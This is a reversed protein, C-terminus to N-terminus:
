ILTLGENIVQETMVEFIKARAGPSNLGEFVGYLKKEQFKCSLIIMGKHFNSKFNDIIYANVKNRLKEDEVEEEQFKEGIEKPTMRAVKVIAPDIYIPEPKHSPYKEPNAPKASINGAPAKAREVIAGVESLDAEFVSVATVDLCHPESKIEKPSPTEPHNDASVPMHEDQKTKGQSQNTAGSSSVNSGDGEDKKEQTQNNKKQAHEPISTDDHESECDASDSRPKEQTDNFNSPTAKQPTRKEFKEKSIEEM